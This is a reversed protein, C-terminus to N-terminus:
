SRIAILLAGIAIAAIGFEDTYAWDSFGVAKNPWYITLLGFALWTAAAAFGIRWPPLAEQIRPSTSRPAPAREPAAPGVRAWGRFPLSDFGLTPDPTSM